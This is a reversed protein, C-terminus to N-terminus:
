LVLDQGLVDLLVSRSGFPPLKGQKQCCETVERHLQQAESPNCLTECLLCLTVCLVAKKSEAFRKKAAEGTNVANRTSDDWFFPPLGAFSTYKILVPLFCDITQKVIEDAKKEAAKKEAGYDSTRAM